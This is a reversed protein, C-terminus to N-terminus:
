PNMARISYDKVTNADREIATIVLDPRQWCRGAGACDGPSFYRRCHRQREQRAGVSGVAGKADWGAVIVNGGRAASVQRNQKWEPPM